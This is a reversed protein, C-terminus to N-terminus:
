RNLLQQKISLLSPDLPNDQLLNELITQVNKEEKLKHYLAILKLGPFNYDPFESRLKQWYKIEKKLLEEESKRNNLSKTIGLVQTNDKTQSSLQSALIDEKLAEDQNLPFYLQALEDHFQSAFPQRLIKKLIASEETQPLTTTSVVNTIILAVLFFVIILKIITFLRIASFIRPIHPFQTKTTAPYM